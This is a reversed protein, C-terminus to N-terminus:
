SHNVAIIPMVEEWRPPVGSGLVLWASHCMIPAWVVLDMWSLFQFFLHIFFMPIVSFSDPHYPLFNESIYSTLISQAEAGHWASHWPSPCECRPTSVM